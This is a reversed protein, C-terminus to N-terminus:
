IVMALYFGALFAIGNVPRERWGRVLIPGTVTGWYIYPGPSLANMAAAQLVNRTGSQAAIEGRYSRWSRYAGWALYLIFLGGAVHLAKELWAALQSLVFLRLAIIPGDSLLPALAVPLARRWGRKLTQSLLFTQFPGPQVAASFGYGLGQAIYVALM